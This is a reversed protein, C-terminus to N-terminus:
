LPEEHLRVDRFGALTLYLHIQPYSWPTIHMHRGKEMRNILPPFGPFFGRMLFQLRSAPYWINPTAVILFGKDNLRERATKLFLAPNGLHELGECCAICDYGPLESPLGEDLDHRILRRYDGKPTDYLDIGDVDAKYELRQILWGSGCPADLITRPRRANIM